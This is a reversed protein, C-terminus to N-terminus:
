PTSDPRARQWASQLRRDRGYPDSGFHLAGEDDARVNLYVLYVPMGQALRIQRTKGTGIADEIARRDMDQDPALLYEALQVPEEIRICGSSFTREPLRFLVPNPTGHLYIDYPNDFSFRLRGLSNDPGPDQRLTYRFSNPTVQSWDIDQAPVERGDQASFVRIRNRGLFTADRQQQPLLDEVAIRRPVTWAPNVTIRDIDGRFSPTQRYTRGVISQMAFRSRDQEIVDLRAAAINVLIYRDEPARPMWRWREMALKVQEIRHEVTVNLAARTDKGMIGDVWLAHESQFRQVAEALGADFYQPDAQMEAQYHGSIRLRNRLPIVRADRTGPHLAPGDPILPWGGSDRIGLLQQLGERLRRYQAYPPLLAAQYAHVAAANDAADAPLEPVAPPPRAIRWEPDLAPDLRGTALDRSYRAFARSLREGFHPYAPDDPQGALRALEAAAYDGPELGEREAQLLLELRAQQGAGPAADAAAAVAAPGACLLLGAIAALAGRM